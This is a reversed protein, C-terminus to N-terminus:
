YSVSIWDGLSDKKISGSTTFSLELFYSQNKESESLLVFITEEKHSYHTVNM